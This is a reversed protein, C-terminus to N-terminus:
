VNDFYIGLNSVISPDDSCDFMDKLAGICEQANFGALKCAGAIKAAVSHRQGDKWVLGHKLMYSKIFRDIEQTYSWYGGDIVPMTLIKIKEVEKKAKLLEAKYQEYKSKWDVHIQEKNFSILKQLNGNERVENPKRTIRSPDLLVKSDLEACGIKQPLNLQKVAEKVAFKFEDVTTPHSEFDFCFLCHLSKNGSDVVRFTPWQSSLSLMEQKAQEIEEQSSGEPADYEVLFRPMIWMNDNTFRSVHNETKTSNPINVGEYILNFVEGTKNDTYAETLKTRTTPVFVECAKQYIEKDVIVGQEKPKSSTPYEFPLDPNLDFLTYIYRKLEERNIIKDTTEIVSNAHAQEIITLVTPKKNEFFGDDFLKLRRESWNNKDQDLVYDPYNELLFDSLKKVMAKAGEEKYQESGSLLRSLRNFSIAGEKGDKILTEILNILEVSIKLSINSRSKNIIIQQCKSKNYDVANKILADFLDIYSVEGLLGEECTPKNEYITTMKDKNFEYWADTTRVCHVVRDNSVIKDLPKGNHTALFFIAENKESTRGNFLARKTIVPAINKNIRKLANQNCKDFGEEDVYYLHEIFDNQNCGEFILPLDSTKFGNKEMYLKEKKLRESKGNRGQETDTNFMCMIHSEVPIGQIWKNISIFHDAIKYVDSLDRVIECYVVLADAFKKRNPEIEKQLNIRAINAQKEIYDAQAEIVKPIASNWFREDNLLSIKFVDSCDTCKLYQEFPDQYNQYKASLQLFSNKYKGSQKIHDIDKILAKAEFKPMFKFDLKYTEIFQNQGPTTVVREDDPITEILNKKTIKPYQIWTYEDFLVKLIKTRFDHKKSDTPITEPNIDFVDANSIIDYTKIAIEENSISKETIKAM